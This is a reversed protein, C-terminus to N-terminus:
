FGISIGFGSGYYGPGYGPGYAWPYPGWPYPAYYPYSYYPYPARREYVRRRVKKVPRDDQVHIVSERQKQQSFGNYAILIGMGLLLIIKIRM